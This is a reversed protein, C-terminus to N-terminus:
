FTFQGGIKVLRGQLVDTPRLWESTAATSFTNNYALVASRNFVNYIDAMVQFRYRDRKFLRALRFDVQNLRDGFQSNPQMLAVTATGASLNRGLPTPGANAIASSISWNAALAPGPISQLTGSVQVDYPLTYSGLVKVQTLFPPTLECFRLDPSDFVECNKTATRGTSTGGALLLKDKRASITLDLGNFVQARQASDAFDVVRNVSLLPRATASVDFLGCV